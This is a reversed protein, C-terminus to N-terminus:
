GGAVRYIRYRGPAIGPPPDLAMWRDVEMVQDGLVIGGPAMLRDISPALAAALAASAAEDGSGIDAHALGVTPGLRRHATPLTELFDGLFLHEPDPRSGPHAAIQRDFVFIDRGALRERLHDYTRGNGLGLEIAPGPLGGVLAAAMDIYARQAELRRIFSDLRSM